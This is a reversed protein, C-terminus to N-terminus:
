LWRFNQLEHLVQDVRTRTLKRDSTQEETSAECQLSLVLCYCCVLIEAYMASYLRASDTGDIENHGWTRKGVAAVAAARGALRSPRHPATAVAARRTVRMPDLGRRGTIRCWFRLRAARWERCMSPTRTQDPGAGLALRGQRSLSLRRHHKLGKCKGLRNITVPRCLSRHIRDCMPQPGALWACPSLGV